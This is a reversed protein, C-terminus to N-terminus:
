TYKFYCLLLQLSPETTLPVKPEELPGPKIGLVVHYSVVIQLELNLPDLWRKQGRFFGLM